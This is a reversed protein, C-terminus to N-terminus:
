EGVKDLVTITLCKLDNFLDYRVGDQTMVEPRLVNERNNKIVGAIEGTSLIVKSGIPYLVISRLFVRLIHIDFDATMAMMMEIALSPSYATKYPRSTVLAGYVDAVTLIRAYLSIKEGELKQPYGNGNWKEHHQLVGLKVRDPISEIDMINQYGYVPHTKMMNFEIDTLKRPANLINTPIRTKGLDHLLGAMSLERLQSEPMGLMKGIVISMAAVDLSHKFTYEDSCKLEDLSIGVNEDGSIIDVLTASLDDVKEVSESIDPNNYLYSITDVASQKVEQTLTILKENDGPSSKPVKFVEAPEDNFTPKRWVYMSRDGRELVSRIEDTIVRSEELLLRGDSDYVAEKVCGQRIIERPDIKWM